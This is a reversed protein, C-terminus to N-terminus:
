IKLKVLWLVLRCQHKGQVISFRTLIWNASISNNTMSSMKHFQRLPDQLSPQRFLRCCTSQFHLVKLQCWLWDDHSRILMWLDKVCLKKPIFAVIAPLRPFLTSSLLWLNMAKALQDLLKSKMRWLVFIKAGHREQNVKAFARGFHKARLGFLNLKILVRRLM